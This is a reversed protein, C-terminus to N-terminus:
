KWLSFLFKVSEEMWPKCYYLPSDFDRNTAYSGTAMGHPGHPFVHIEFLVGNKALAEAYALSQRVDVVPDDSTHWIYAPPTNKDVRDELSMKKFLANDFDTIGTLNKISGLHSIEPKSSLVPYGLVQANPRIYEPEVCLPKYIDEDNWLTCISAALHGGASYGTVAIKDKDVMFDDGNDRIFKIAAGLELQQEPYHAAPAVSYKLVFCSFGEELYKFAIPEGERDFALASYGGGPCVVMVPNKRNREWVLANDNIYCDLLPEQESKLVPFIEKLKVTFFKM